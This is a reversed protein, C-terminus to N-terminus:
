TDILSFGEPLRKEVMDFLVSTKIGLAECMSLISCLRPENLGRELRSIMSKQLDYEDALIRVSKNLKLREELFIEGIIKYVIKAKENNVHQM